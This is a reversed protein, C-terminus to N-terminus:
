FYCVKVLGEDVGERRAGGGEDRERGVRESESSASDASLVTVHRRLLCGAGAVASALASNLPRVGGLNKAVQAAGGDWDPAPLM